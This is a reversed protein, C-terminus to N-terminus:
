VFGNVEDFIHFWSTVNTAYWSASVFQQKELIKLTVEKADDFSSWVTISYEEFENKQLNLTRSVATGQSQEM